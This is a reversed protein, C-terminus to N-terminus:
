GLDVGLSHNGDKEYASAGHDINLPSSSEVLETSIKIVKSCRSGDNRQAVM